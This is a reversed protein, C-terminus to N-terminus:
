KILNLLGFFLLGESNQLTVKKSLESMKSWVFNNM